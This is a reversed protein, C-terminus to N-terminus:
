IYYLPLLVVSLVNELHSGALLFILWADFFKFCHFCYVNVAVGYLNKKKKRGGGKEVRKGRDSRKRAKM